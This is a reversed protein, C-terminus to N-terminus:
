SQLGVHTIFRRKAWWAAIAMMALSGGLAYAWQWTSLTRSGALMLMFPAHSPIAFWVAPPGVSLAYLFPLQLVGGVIVADPILFATISTHTAIQGLGILTQFVSLFVLGGFLPLVSVDVGRGYFGVTWVIASEVVAFGSLSLVKSLMYANASLPSTRLAQLTGETKEMIVLAASFFYTTGGTGLLFFCAIVTGANDASFGYRLALGLMFAVAIGISYLRSRAQMLVDLGLTATLTGNM